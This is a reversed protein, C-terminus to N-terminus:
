GDNEYEKGMITNYGAKAKELLEMADDIRYQLDKIKRYESELEDWVFFGADDVGDIVEGQSKALDRLAAIADTSRVFVYFAMDFTTAEKCERDYLTFANTQKEYKVCDNKTNFRTGDDAIYEVRM